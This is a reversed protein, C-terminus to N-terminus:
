NCRQSNDTWIGPAQPAYLGRALIRTGFIHMFCGAVYLRRSQKRVATKRNHLAIDETVQHIHGRRINSAVDEIQVHTHNHTHMHTRTHHHHAHVHTYRYDEGTAALVHILHLLFMCMDKNNGPNLTGAGMPRTADLNCRGRSTGHVRAIVDRRRDIAATLKKLKIPDAQSVTGAAACQMVDEYNMKGTLREKLLDKLKKYDIEETGFQCCGVYQVPVVLKHRGADLKIHKRNYWAGRAPTFRADHVCVLQLEDGTWMDASDEDFFLDQPLNIFYCVSQHDGVHASDRKKRNFIGDKDPRKDGLKMASTIVLHARDLTPDKASASAVSNFLRQFNDARFFVVPQDKLGHQKIPALIEREHHGDERYEKMHRQLSSRPIRSGRVVQTNRIACPVHKSDCVWGYLEQPMNWQKPMMSYLLHELHARVATDSPPIMVTRYSKKRSMKSGVQRVETCSLDDQIRNVFASGSGLVSRFRHFYDKLGDKARMWYLKRAKADEGYLQIGIKYVAVIKHSLGCHRCKVKALSAITRLQDSVNTPCEHQNSMTDVQNQLCAIRRKLTVANNSDACHLKQPSVKPIPQPARQCFRKSWSHKNPPTQSAFSAQSESQQEDDTIMAMQM